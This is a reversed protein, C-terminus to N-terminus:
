KVNIELLWKVWYYGPMSPFVARLPFGHLVPLPEGKWEYALFNGDKMATKINMQSQDGDAAIMTITKAGSKVDALELIYKLPVGSWTTTDEFYGQCVLNPTATVKPMCRLEDYSLSLPRDVLGTVKLRFSTVDIPGAHGTVHLGTSEDLMYNGPYPAMTPVVIPVLGCSSVIESVGPTPTEQLTMTETVLALTPTSTNTITPTQTTTPSFAQGTGCASLLLSYILAVLLIQKM